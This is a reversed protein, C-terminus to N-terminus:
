RTPPTNRYIPWNRLLDHEITSGVLWTIEFATSKLYPTNVSELATQGPAEETYNSAVRLVLLRQRDARGMRDLRTIAEAIAADEMNSMVFNGKGATWLHVWDNAYGTMIKGHWYYDSAFSDGLIVKPPASAAPMASWRKRDEVMAPNEPLHLDATRAFAWEALGANLAYGNNVFPHPPLQDPAQAGIPFLGYPWTPPAERPDIERAVDNVVFRAWAATGITGDAPDVGAIGNVIWYAHTLDFRPDLGLAMLSPGANALTVGTVVGLVDHAPNLRLDRVGGPFPLRESLHEREVWTQFEGPADGTDEGVEFTTVVVVKIPMPPPTQAAAHALAAASLLLSLLTKM